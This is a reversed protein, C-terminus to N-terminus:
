NMYARLITNPLSSTGLLHTKSKSQFTKESQHLFEEDRAQLYLFQLEFHNLLKGLALWTLIEVYPTQNFM